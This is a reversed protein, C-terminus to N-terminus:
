KLEKGLMFLVMEVHYVQWDPPLPHFREADEKTPPVGYKQPNSRLIEAVKRLLWSAYIFALPAQSNSIQHFGQICEGGRGRALPFRLLGDIPKQGKEEWYKGVLIALGKSVRSDYITWRAPDYMEYIKSNRAVSNTYNILRNGQLETLSDGRSEAGLVEVANRIGILDKEIYQKQKDNPFGWCMIENVAKLLEDDPRANKLNTHLECRKQTGQQWDSGKFEYKEFHVRWGRGDSDIQDAMWEPFDSIRNIYTAYNFPTIPKLAM